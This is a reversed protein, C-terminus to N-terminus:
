IQSACSLGVKAAHSWRSSAPRHLLPLSAQSCKNRFPSYASQNGACQDWISSCLCFPYLRNRKAWRHGGPLALRRHGCLSDGGADGRGARPDSPIFIRDRFRACGPTPLRETKRFIPELFRFVGLGLGGGPHVEAGSGGLERRWPLFKAGRLVLARAEEM